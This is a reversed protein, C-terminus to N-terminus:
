VRYRSLGVFVQMSLKLLCMKPWVICRDIYLFGQISKTRETAAHNQFAHINALFGPLDMKTLKVWQSSTAWSPLNVTSNSWPSQWARWSLWWGQPLSPCDPCYLVIWPDVGWFLYTECQKHRDNPSPNYPSELQGICRNIQAVKSHTSDM